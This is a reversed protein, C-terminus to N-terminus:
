PRLNALARLKAALDSPAAGSRGYEVLAEIRAALVAFTAEFAADIAQEEGTVAAPDPLGWHATAPRGPWVPCAEGAANDCVTVIADMSVAGDGAFEDWTKSHVNDTAIRHRQLVRLAGPNVRGVPQSGASFGRHDPAGLSTMLCEALISRASNGTCLFLVNMTTGAAVGIL